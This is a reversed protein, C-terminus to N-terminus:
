LLITIKPLFIGLSKNGQICMEQGKSFLLIVSEIGLLKLDVMIQNMQSIKAQIKSNEM